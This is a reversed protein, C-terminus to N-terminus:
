KIFAILTHGQIFRSRVIRYRALDNCNLGLVCGAPQAPFVSLEAPTEARPHSKEATILNSANMQKQIGIQGSRCTAVSDCRAMRVRMAATSRVDVSEASRSCCCWNDLKSNSLTWIAIYGWARAPQACAHGSRRAGRSLGAALLLHYCDVHGRISHHLHLGAPIGSWFLRPGCVELPHSELAFCARFTRELWSEPTCAATRPLGATSCLHATAPVRCSLHFLLTASRPQM